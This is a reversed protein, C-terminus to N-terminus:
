FSIKTWSEFTKIHNCLYHFSLSLGFSFIIKQQGKDKNTNQKPYSKVTRTTTKNNISLNNPKQKPFSQYNTSFYKQM